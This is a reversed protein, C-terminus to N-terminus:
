TDVENKAGVKGEKEKISKRFRDNYIKRMGPHSEIWHKYRCNTDRCFKPVRTVHRGFTDKIPYIDKGCYLCKGIPGNERIEKM